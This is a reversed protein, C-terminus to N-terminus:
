SKQLNVPIKKYKRTIFTQRLVSQEISSFLGIRFFLELYYKRINVPDENYKSDDYLQLLKGLLTKSLGSFLEKNRMKPSFLKPNNSHHLFDIIEYDEIGTLGVHNERLSSKFFFANIFKSIIKQEERSDLEMDKTFKKSICYYYRGLIKLFEAEINPLTEGKVVQFLIASEDKLIKRIKDAHQISYNPSDLYDRNLIEFSKIILPSVIKIAEKRVQKTFSNQTHNIYNMLFSPLEKLLDYRSRHSFVFNTIKIKNFGVDENAFVYDEYTNVFPFYSKGIEDTSILEPFKRMPNDSAFCDGITPTKDVLTLLENVIEFNKKAKELVKNQNTPYCRKQQKGGEPVKLEIINKQQPDLMEPLYHYFTKRSAIKKNELTKILQNTTIGEVEYESLIERVNEFLIEHKKDAM